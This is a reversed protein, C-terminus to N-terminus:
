ALSGDSNVLIAMAFNGGRRFHDTGNIQCTLSASGNGSDGDGITASYGTRIVTGDGALNSDLEFTAGGKLVDITPSVDRGNTAFLLPM